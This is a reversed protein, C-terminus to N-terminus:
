LPLLNLAIMRVLTTLKGVRMIFEYAAEFLTNLCNPSVRSLDVSESDGLTCVNSFFVVQTV